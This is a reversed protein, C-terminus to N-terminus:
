DVSFRIPESRGQRSDVYLEYKGPVVTWHAQGQYTRLSVGNLHLTVDSEGGSNTRFIMVQRTAPIAPDFEFEMGDRPYIVQPEASLVLPKPESLTDDISPPPKGEAAFKEVFTRECPGSADDEMCIRREVLAVDHLREPSGDAVLRVTSEFIEHFLPGAATAGTMNSTPRGDFNGAWVAVTFRRTYGITWTDRYGKSTGTKVAVPFPLELANTAGFAERRAVGDSLMETVLAASSRSFVRQSPSGTGTLEFRPTLTLGGRALAGYAGALDLLTVEGDGLALAPGYHSAPQDLTDLGLDRLTKLVREKGLKELTYVAPINLSNSLARRLRVRGRYKRDFNVPSYYRDATRFHKEEDPLLTAPDYGLEDLSLAYIFPKLTSGPQRLALVGDNQGGDPRHHFDPSGVYALVDGTNNDLVVAAAATASAEHESFSRRRQAVLAEVEQQLPGHLTSHVVRDKSTRSVVRVWHHAGELPGNPLITIPTERAAAAERSDIKGLAVMRLLVRDRERMALSPHRRPDFLSPGRILGVLTATEALDLARLPKGFYHDAAARIGVIRPGFHVRNIYQEFINPKTLKRELQLALAMETWKGGLTRPRDFTRRALQQTITSAGSVVRGHLLAQLAARSLSLADVGPHSFFRQDEAAVAADILQPPLEHYHVPALFIQDDTTQRALLRGDRDLIRRGGAPITELDMPLQQNYSSLWLTMAGVVGMILVVTAGRKCWNFWRKM